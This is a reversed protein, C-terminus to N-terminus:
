KGENNELDTSFVGTLERPKPMLNKVHIKGYQKRENGRGCKKQCYLTVQLFFLKSLLSRQLFRSTRQGFGGFTLEWQLISKAQQKRIGDRM